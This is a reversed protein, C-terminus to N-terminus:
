RGVVVHLLVLRIPQKECAISSYRESTILFLPTHSLSISQKRILSQGYPLFLYTVIVFIRMSVVLILGLNVNVMTRKGKEEKKSFYFMVSMLRNGTYKEGGERSTVM